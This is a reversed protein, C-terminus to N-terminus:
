AKCNTKALRTRKWQEIATNREEPQKEATEHRFLLEATPLSRVPRSTRQKRSSDLNLPSSGSATALAIIIEFIRRHDLTEIPDDRAIERKSHPNPRSPDSLCRPKQQGNL